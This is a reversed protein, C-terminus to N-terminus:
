QKSENKFSKNGNILEERLHKLYALSACLLCLTKGTETTSELGAIDNKQFTEILKKMYLIQNEYPKYPFFIEIGLIDLKKQKTAMKLDIQIKRTKESQEEQQISGEDGSNSRM